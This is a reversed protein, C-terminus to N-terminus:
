KKKRLRTPLEFRTKAINKYPQGKTGYKSKIYNKASICANLLSDDAAYASNDLHEGTTNSNSEATIVAATAQGLAAHKARHTAAKYMDEDTTIALADYQEIFEGYNDARTVYSLNAVSIHNEGDNPDIKKARIGKIDRAITQLAAIENASKGASRVYAVLSTIDSNLPKFLNERNNRAQEEAAESTQNAARDALAATRKTKLADLGAIANPPSYEAGLREAEAIIKDVDEFFKAETRENRKKPAPQSVPTENGNTEPM